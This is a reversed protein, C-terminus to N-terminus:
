QLQTTSKTRLKSSRMEKPKTSPHMMDYETTEKGPDDVDHNSYNIGDVDVDRSIEGKEGAYGDTHSLITETDIFGNINSSALNRKSSEGGRTIDSSQSRTSSVESYASINSSYTWDNGMTKAGRRPDDATEDNDGETAEIEKEAYLENDVPLQLDTNTM